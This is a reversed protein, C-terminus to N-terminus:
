LISSLLSKKEYPSSVKVHQLLVSLKGKLEPLDRNFHTAAGLIIGTETIVDKNHKRLARNKEYHYYSKGDKSRPDPARKLFYDRFDDSLNGFIINRNSVWYPDINFTSLWILVEFQRKLVDREEKSLININENDKVMTDKLMKWFNDTAHGLQICIQMADHFRNIAEIQKRKFTNVSELVTVGPSDAESYIVSHVKTIKKITNINPIVRDVIKYVSDHYLEKVDAGQTLLYRTSYEKQAQSISASNINWYLKNGLKSRPVFLFMARSKLLDNMVNKLAKSLMQQGLPLALSLIVDIFVDSVTVSPGKELMRIRIEQVQEVAAHAADAISHIHHEHRRRSLSNMDLLIAQKLPSLAKLNTNNSKNSDSFEFEVESM